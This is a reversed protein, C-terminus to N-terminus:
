AKRKKPLEMDGILADISAYGLRAAGVKLRNHNQGRVRIVKYPNSM